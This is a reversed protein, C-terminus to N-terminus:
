YSIAGQWLGLRQTDPVAFFGRERDWGVEVDWGGRRLHGTLRHSSRNDADAEPTVGDPLQVGGTGGHPGHTFEPTLSPDDCYRGIASILRDNRALAILADHVAAEEEAIRIVERLESLRREHWEVGRHLSALHDPPLAM